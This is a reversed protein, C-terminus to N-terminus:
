KMLLTKIDNKGVLKIGLETYECLKQLRIYFKDLLKESYDCDYLIKVYYIVSRM